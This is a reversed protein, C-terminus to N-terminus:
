MGIMLKAWVHTYSSCVLRESQGPASQRNAPRQGGPSPGRGTAASRARTGCVEAKTFTRRHVASLGSTPLKQLTRLSKMRCASPSIHTKSTTALIILRCCQSARKPSRRWASPYFLEARVTSGATQVSAPLSRYRVFILNRRLRYRNGPHGRGM